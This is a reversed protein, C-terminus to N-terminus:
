VRVGTVTWDEDGSAGFLRGNSSETLAATKVTKAFEILPTVDVGKRAEARLTKAADVPLEAAEIADVAADYASVRAEVVKEDAEAQMAEAQAANEKTVLRTLLAELAAFREEVDKEMKIETEKEVASTVTPEGSERAMQAASEVMQEVLSSGPRGPYSVMDVGNQVDEVFKTVNGEEDLEGAVYVSLAVHPAVEEVKERWSPLVEILGVLGVGEEYYSDEALFGWMAFPDPEGNETRNHTVFSKAGKRLAVPGYEKLVSESYTGSSGVGPTILVSKWRGNGAKTPVATSETLLKTTM